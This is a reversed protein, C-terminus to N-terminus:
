NSYKRFKLRAYEVERVVLLTVIEQFEDEKKIRLTHM